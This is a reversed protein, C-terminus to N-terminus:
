NKDKLKKTVRGKKKKSRREGAPHTGALWRAGSELKLRNYNSAAQPGKPCQSLIVSWARGLKFINMFIMRKM